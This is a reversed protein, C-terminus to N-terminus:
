SWHGFYLLDLRNSALRPCLGDSDAVVAQEPQLRTVTEASGRAWKTSRDPPKGFKVKLGVSLQLAWLGVLEPGHLMAAEAHGQADSRETEARGRM